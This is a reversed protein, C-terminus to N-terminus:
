IFKLGVEKPTFAIGARGAGAEGQAKEGKKWRLTEGLPSQETGQVCWKRGSAAVSCCM